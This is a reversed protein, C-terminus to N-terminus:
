KGEEECCGPVGLLTWLHMRLRSRYSAMEERGCSSRADLWGPPLGMLWAVFRPNLRAQPNGADLVVRDRLMLQKNVGNGAHRAVSQLVSPNPSRDDGAGPTPWLPPSTPDPPSSTPGPMATPPPPPSFDITRVLVQLSTIATRNGGMRAKMALHAEPTKNDDHATPTPWFDRVYQRLDVQRKGQPTQGTPSIDKAM